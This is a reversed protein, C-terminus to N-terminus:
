RSPGDAQGPIRAPAYTVAGVHLSHRCEHRAARLEPFEFEDTAALSSYQQLAECASDGMLGAAPFAQQLDWAIKDCNLRAMRITHLVSEIAGTDMDGDLTSEWETLEAVSALLDSCPKTCFSVGNNTTQVPYDGCDRQVSM